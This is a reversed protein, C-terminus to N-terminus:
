LPECFVAKPAAARRARASSSRRVPRRSPLFARGRAPRSPPRRRSDPRAYRSPASGRRAPSWRPRESVNDGSLSPCHVAVHTGALLRATATLTGAPTGAPSATGTASFAPRWDLGATVMATRYPAPGGPGDARPRPQRGAKRRRARAALALRLSLPPSGAQLHVEVCAAEASERVVLALRPDALLRLRHLPNERENLLARSFPNGTFGQQIFNASIGRGLSSQFALRQQGQGRFSDLDARADGPSRSLECRDSVSRIISQMEGGGFRGPGLHQQRRIISEDFPDRAPVAM